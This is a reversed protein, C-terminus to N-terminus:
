ARVIFGGAELEGGGSEGSEREGWQGRLGREGARGARDRECRGNDGWHRKGLWAVPWREAGHPEQKARRGKGSQEPVPWFM